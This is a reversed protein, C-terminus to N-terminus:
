WTSCASASPTSGGADLQMPELNRLGLYDRAAVSEEHRRAKGEAAVVHRAGRLAVARAEYGDSAGVDLFSRGVIPTFYAVLPTRYTCSTTEVGDIVFPRIWPGATTIGSNTM